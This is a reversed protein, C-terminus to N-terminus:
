KRKSKPEHEYKELYELIAKEVLQSLEMDDRIAQIKAEKWLEPNIKLSTSERKVELPRGDPPM